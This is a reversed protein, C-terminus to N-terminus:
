ADLSFCIILKVSSALSLSLVGTTYHDTTVDLHEPPLVRRLVIINM